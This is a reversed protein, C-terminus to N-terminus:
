PEPNTNLGDYITHVAVVAAVVVVVVFVFVRALPHILHPINEKQKKVEGPAPAPSTRRKASKHGRVVSAALFLSLMMTLGANSDVDVSEVWRYRILLHKPWASM